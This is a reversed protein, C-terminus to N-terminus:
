CRADETDRAAWLIMDVMRPTWRVPGFMVNLDIAKRRMINVLLAADKERLEVYEKNKADLRLMALVEKREPLSEIKSLAKVVFTDATGFWKPFLVALLGSAGAPGLGRIGKKSTTIELGKRIDSPDFAFLKEKISLLSELSNTDLNKLRIPLFRPDTFKWRFYKNLFAHWENRDLHKISEINLKDM